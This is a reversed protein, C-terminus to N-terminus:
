PKRSPRVLFYSTEEFTEIPAARASAVFAAERAREEEKSQAESALQAKELDRQFAAEAAEEDEEDDGSSGGPPVGAARLAAAAAAAGTHGARHGGSSHRPAPSSGHTMIWVQALDPNNNCAALAARALAEPVRQSQPRPGESRTLAVDRLACPFLPVRWSSSWHTM